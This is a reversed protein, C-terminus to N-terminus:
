KLQYSNNGHVYDLLHEVTKGNFMFKFVEKLKPNDKVSKGKFYSHESGVEDAETVDVYNANESNLGKLYHGLRALQEKGPKIRSAKLASDDENIVIYLRNRPDLKEVWRAHQKNNTDAAVLCINDFVANSTSNESTNLSYKLLYNGMSHCLLNLKVTCMEDVLRGYLAQAADPNSKQPYKEEVKGRVEALAAETLLLHFFQIKEVFRNLADTSARADAKDSLYSATGSIVGGGNAPWTFPVAIVNYLKELEFATKLVDEVDNNYGHVFFLIAKNEERARDFLRCAVGLSAHWSKNEDIDLNFQNKLEVVEDKSLDDNIVEVGWSRGNKNVEVLRLENPGKPNPEKGFAGLGRRNKLVRNTILYM